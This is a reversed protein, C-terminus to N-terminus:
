GTIKSLGKIKHALYAIGFSITSLVAFILPAFWFSGLFGKGYTDILKVVVNNWVLTQIFVHIFFVFFSLKSLRIFISRALQTKEFIYFFLAAFILTYIYNLINYQSYIFRTTHFKTTLDYVHLPLALSIVGFITLLLQFNSKVFELIKDKHDSIVVGILFMIFSLLVIRHNPNIDIAKVYYDIYLFYTEIIALTSFVFLNSIFKKLRQIFPFFVYFIILTPIFYLHYSANGEFINRLLEFNIREIFGFGQWMYLYFLSWFIFPIIVRSARRKFFNLYSLDKYNLSLVFGSILFFLPVAFRSNQNMLFPIIASAADHNLEQLVKISIHISIVSLIAIVRLADLSFLYTPKKSHDM